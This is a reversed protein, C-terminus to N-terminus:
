ALKPPKGKKRKRIIRFLTHSFTPEANASPEADGFDDVGVVWGVCVLLWHKGIKIFQLNIVTNFIILVRSKLKGIEAIFTILSLFILDLFIVGVHKM